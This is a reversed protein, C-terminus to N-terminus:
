HRTILRPIRMQSLAELVARSYDGFACSSSCGGNSSKRCVVVVVPVESGARQINRAMGTVVHDIEPSGDPCPASPYRIPLDADPLVDVEPEGAPSADDTSRPEAGVDPAGDSGSDSEPHVEPEPTGLVSSDHEYDRCEPGNCIIREHMCGGWGCDKRPRSGEHECLFADLIACKTPTEPPCEVKKDVLCTGIDYTDPDAHLRWYQCENM